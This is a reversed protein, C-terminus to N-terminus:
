RKLCELVMGVLAPEAGHEVWVLAGGALEISIGGGNVTVQEHEARAALTKTSEKGSSLSVPLLATSELTPEKEFTRRWKFLQNANVGYARAVEAVSAMPAFTLGVLRRKEAKSWTRRTRGVRDEVRDVM